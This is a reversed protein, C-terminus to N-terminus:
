EADNGGKVMGDVNRKWWEKWRVSKREVRAEEAAFVVGHSRVVEELTCGLYLAQAEAVPMGEKVARCAEYFGTALGTDGGGHGGGMQKPHYVKTTKTVFDVVRITTSDYSIEGHTGYIYGRRECQKETSAVMHFVANKSGRGKLPSDSTTVPDDEWSITVVQDDCVDNACEYVCRGFWPRSDIVDQPTTEDYDEALRQRLRRRSADIGDRKLLDEIEPDVVNVPWGANGKALREGDYIKQASYICEAEAPCSLCDTADGALVPKRRKRYYLLSGTSSVYSPLHPPQEPANSPPACLFWLILDIDHCSKTLLSPATKSEKRWNGRVYSHAFHWWGVPETHEISLVEGIISEELLLKHLLINHPSYRLVHGTSFIVKPCAISPPQLARYIRLCDIWTTALPKESMIHLGLPALATIIETHTEDLTCVFVGDIAPPVDKTKGEARREQHDSETKVFTQWDDFCQGSQPDRPWIYKEAFLKRKFLIPEAVAAITADQTSRQLAEAYANGRSGAGIVLFRLQVRELAGNSHMDRSYGNVIKRKETFFSLKSNLNCLPRILLSFERNTERFKLPGWDVIFDELKLAVIDGFVLANGDQVLIFGLCDIRWVVILATSFHRSSFTGQKLGYSLLLLGM